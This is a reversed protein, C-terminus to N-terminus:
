SAVCMMNSSRRRQPHLRAVRVKAVISWRRRVSFRFRCFRSRPKENFISDFDFRRPLLLVTVVSARDTRNATGTGQYLSLVPGSHPGYISWFTCHSWLVQSSHYPHHAHTTTSCYTPPGRWWFLLDELIHTIFAAFMVPWDFVDLNRKLQWTPSWTEAGYLIVPLIFVRHLRLKTTLSISSHWINRDLTAMCNRAIAIHKKIDYESSMTNSNVGPYTFSEVIEVNDRAVPVLFGPSPHMSLRFRPRWGILQSVFLNWSRPEIDWIGVSTSIADWDSPCHQLCLSSGHIARHRNDM